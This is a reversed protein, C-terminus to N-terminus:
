IFGYPLVKGRIGTLNGLIEEETPTAGLPCQGAFGVGPQDM